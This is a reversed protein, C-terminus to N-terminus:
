NNVYFDFPLEKKDKCNTFKKEREFPINAKKLLNEIKINGHSNNKCLGCSQTNGTILNSSLVKIEKGCSCKCLWQVFNKHNEKNSIKDECRKIVVLKGFTKGTLDNFNLGQGKELAKRSLCGCSKAKGTKLRTSSIEKYNGCDCKCLWM